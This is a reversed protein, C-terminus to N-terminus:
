FKYRISFGIPDFIRISSEQLFDFYPKVDLSLAIPANPINYEVGVIGDISLALESEPEVRVGESNTYSKYKYSGISGGYGYYWSFDGMLPKHFEYLGVLRFRNSKSNSQISLIGEVARDEALAYRYNFGTSSGFRVGAAHQSPLQAFSQQSALTLVALAFLRGVTKIMNEQKILREFIFMIIELRVFYM